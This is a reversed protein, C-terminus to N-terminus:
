WLADWLRIALPLIFLVRQAQTVPPKAEVFNRLLGVSLFTWAVDSRDM